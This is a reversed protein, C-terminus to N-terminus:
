QDTTRNGTVTFGHETQELYGEEALNMLADKIQDKSVDGDFTNTAQTTTFEVMSHNRMVHSKLRDKLGTEGTSGKPNHGSDPQEIPSNSQWELNHEQCHQRLKSGLESDEIVSGNSKRKKEFDLRNRVHGVWSASKEVGNVQEYREVIESYSITANVFPDGDGLYSTEAVQELALDRLVEIFRADESDAVATKDQQRITQVYPEFADLKDWLIAVTVLSLLKERTRGTIGNRDLYAYAESEATKWEDSDLLRYRAYLLRNRIQRARQEDLTAPMDRHSPSSRVQICRNVIDDAPTYQTAIAIHSFPDFTRPEFGNNSQEARTIKEGKKQGARVVNDLERQEDPGLGHYESVFYSVDYSDIMRFMSAPTASAAVIARYSVRALTNLLRTKGGTTKGMLMLHPVFTLNPRVWTSLAFATLGEYIESEGADWHDYIFSRVDVWIDSYGEDSMDSPTHWMDDARLAAQVESEDLGGAHDWPVRNECSVCKEPEEIRGNEIETQQTHKHGDTSCRPCVWEGLTVKRDEEPVAVRILGEDTVIPEPPGILEETETPEVIEITQQGALQEYSLDDVPGRYINYRINSHHEPPDFVSDLVRYEVVSNDNGGVYGESVVNGQGDNHANGGGVDSDSSM